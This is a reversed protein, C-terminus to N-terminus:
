KKDIERLLASWKLLLLGLNAKVSLTSFAQKLLTRTKGSSCLVDLTGLVSYAVVVCCM